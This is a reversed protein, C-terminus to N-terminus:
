YTQEAYRGGFLYDPIDQICWDFKNMVKVVRNTFCPHFFETHGGFSEDFHFPVVGTHNLIVAEASAAKWAPHPGYIRVEEVSSFPSQKLLSKIRSKPNFSIGVKGAVVKGEENKFNLIYLYCDKENKYKLHACAHGGCKKIESEPKIGCQMLRSKIHKDSTIELWEAMKSLDKGSAYYVQELNDPCESAFQKILNGKYLLSVSFFKCDNTIYHENLNFKRLVSRYNYDVDELFDLIQNRNLFLRAYTAYNSPHHDGGYRDCAWKRFQLLSRSNTPCKIEWFYKKIPDEKPIELVEKLTEFNFDCEVFKDYLTGDSVTKWFKESLHEHSGKGSCIDSCYKRVRAKKDLSMVMNCHNCHIKYDDPLIRNRIINLKIIDKDILDYYLPDGYAWETAQDIKEFLFKHDRRRVRFIGEMEKLIDEYMRELEENSRWVFNEGTRIM